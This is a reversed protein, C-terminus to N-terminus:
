FGVGEVEGGCCCGVVMSVVWRVVVAVGCWWLLVMHVFVWLFILLFDM